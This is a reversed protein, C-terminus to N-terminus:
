EDGQNNAAVHMDYQLEDLIAMATAALSLRGELKGKMREVKWADGESEVPVFLIQNQLDDVQAQIMQSLIIWAPSKLLAEFEKIREKINVPDKLEEAM